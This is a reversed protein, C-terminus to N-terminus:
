KRVVRQTFGFGKMQEYLKQQEVAKAVAKASSGKELEKQCGACVPIESQVEIGTEHLPIRLSRGTEPNFDTGFGQRDKRRYTTYRRMPQGPLSTVGCVSCNYMSDLEGQHAIICVALLSIGCSADLVLLLVATPWDCM